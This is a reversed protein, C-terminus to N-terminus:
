SGGIRGDVRVSIPQNASAYRMVADALGTHTDSVAAQNTWIDFYGMAGDALYHSMAVSYHAHLDLPQGTKTVTVSAIRADGVKSRDYRVTLGGVQLFGEFPGPLRSLGHALASKVQAGTLTMTVVTDAPDDQARLASAIKDTDVKGADIVVPHIEAAPCLAFDAGPAAALMADAVLDGFNSESSDVTRSDLAVGITVGAARADGGLLLTAGIAVILGAAIWLRGAGPPRETRVGVANWM